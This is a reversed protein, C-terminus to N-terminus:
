KSYTTLVRTFHTLLRETAHDLTWFKKIVEIAKNGMRMRLDKDQLLMMIAHAFLREDRDILLGTEGHIVSERVGGERVAVVPTGCAMAELPALGFPELYPAYVFLAARNYLSVLEDEQILIHIEIQVRLSNALNEIYQAWRKNINNAIIVLRPRIKSDIKALAKVLFEYGKEPNLLGVSMVFNEREINLPRFINTDVGLYCVYSNLGYSRLINEHSFYSNTAIYKAYHANENDIMTIISTLYQRWCKKMIESINTYDGCEKLLKNLFAENLRVPQQCCYLAPKILYKLIFPSMTFRDQEVYVVDYDGNNIIEAIKKQAVELDSLSIAFYRLPIIYNITSKIVGPITRRVPVVKVAQAYENSRLFMEDATSPVLVDISHEAKALYKLFGYFSRKAGGSHLNHFMAIKM